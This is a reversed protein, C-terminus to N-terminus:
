PSEVPAPDKAAQGEAKLAAIFESAIGGDHTAIADLTEVARAYCGGCAGNEQHHCSATMLSSGIDYAWEGSGNKVVAMGM